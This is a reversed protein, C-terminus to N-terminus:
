LAKQNIRWGERTKLYRLAIKGLRNADCKEQLLINLEQKTMSKKPTCSFITTLIEILEDKWLLQAIGFCAKQENKKAKRVLKFKFEEKAIDQILFIGWWDPVLLEVKKFYRSGTIIYIRDFVENYAIIQHHLRNLNDRDTKIEYGIMKGNLVAIDARVVGNKLGFENLVITNSDSHASNLISKHFSKRVSSDRM